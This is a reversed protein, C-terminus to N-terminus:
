AAAKMRESSQAKMGCAAPEAELSCVHLSEKLNALLRPARTRTASQRRRRVYQVIVSEVRGGGDIVAGANLLKCGRKSVAVAIALPSNDPKGDTRATSIRLVVAHPIHSHFGQLAPRTHDTASAHTIANTTDM